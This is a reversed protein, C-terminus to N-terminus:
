NGRQRKGRDEKAKQRNGKTFASAFFAGVLLILFLAIFIGFLLVNQYLLLFGIAAVLFIIGIIGIIWAAKMINSNLYDKYVRALRKPYRQSEKLFPTM